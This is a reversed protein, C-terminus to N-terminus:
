HLPIRFLNARLEVRTFLYTSPDSRSVVGRVAIMTSGPLDKPVEGVNVGAAPLDPLSQGAPIRLALTQPGVVYLFRGDTSWRVECATNCLNKPSGGHTPIAITHYPVRLEDSRSADNALPVVVAVWEGDPSAGRKEIMPSPMIRALESGDVEIRALFNEKSSTDRFVITHPGAFSPQDASPALRRASTSRNVPQIWLQSTGQEVTTFVVDRGDPSVDFGTVLVGPLVTEVAGTKLDLSRLDGAPAPGITNSSTATGSDRYFVHTGDASWRPDSAYGESTIPRDGSADHLWLASVRRGVSTILSLGDRPVALGEEETAGFTIQEPTGNPVAQRWLHSRGDVNASFYMWRGDPSWAAALCQGAPGVTRGPSSGDFPVLRCPSDFTHTKGMEVILVSGLDPSVSSYHAMGMPLAPTYVRREDGRSETANVVRMQLGVGTLESFLVRQDPLWTLGSANPLLRTPLGGIVPVAWTDWSNSPGVPTLQTYAVRSGDPTFVPGYKQHPDDTLRIADGDPLVKVYIQGVSLFPDVGRKYTVLRGDRSLSPTMAADTVNTLQIYESPSTVPRPTRMTAFWALAAVTLVGVVGATAAARRSWARRDALADGIEARADGIDRLRQSPDKELCRRLLRRVVSPTAAPLRTWEPERQLIAAVTDPTTDGAFTRRGSLMEFLVCGFAWIDTRKDTPNGRAQEPSMYAPTGVVVGEATPASVTAAQAALPGTVDSKALGFDLIKAVGSPTLIVNAPKLDRHVIGREHAADLGDAIQRAIALSESVPMSGRRLRDALTEGEVLEMVLARTGNSEELGYVHAINTHNLSALLRAERELRALRDRDLALAQPLVKLAVDRGLKTDHARYVEGMGGAGIQEVIQYPGIMAGSALAPGREAEVSTTVGVDPLALRSTVERLLDADGGCAQALYAAREEPARARAAHYLTEVRAFRDASV